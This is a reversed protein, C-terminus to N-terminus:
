ESQLVLWADDFDSKKLDSAKLWYYIMGTNGWQM